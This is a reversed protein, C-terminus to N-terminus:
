YYWTTLEVATIETPVNSILSWRAVTKENIDKVVAIILRAEIAAGKLPAVRQGLCDKKNSKAARTLRVNTEGVYLMHQNGKYSIPKVQQIEIREAVEGVKCIEGQHEIRNGEKARILWQFGHSSLKIRALIISLM